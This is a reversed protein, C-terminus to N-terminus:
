HCQSTLDPHLHFLLQAWEGQCPTLLLCPCKINAVVSSLLGLLCSHTYPSPIQPLIKVSLELMIENRQGSGINLIGGRLFFRQCPHFELWDRPFHM